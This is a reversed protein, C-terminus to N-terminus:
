ETSENENRQFFICERQLVRVIKRCLNSRFVLTALCTKCCLPMKKRERSQWFSALRVISLSFEKKDTLKFIAFTFIDHFRWEQLKWQKDIAYKHHTRQYSSTCTIRWRRRIRHHGNQHIRYVKFSWVTKRNLQHCLGHKYNTKIIYHSATCKHNGLFNKDHFRYYKSM